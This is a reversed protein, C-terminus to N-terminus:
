SINRLYREREIEALEREAQRGRDLVEFMARAALKAEEADEFYVKHNDQARLAEEEHRLEYALEYRKQRTM